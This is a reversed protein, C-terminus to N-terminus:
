EALLAVDDLRITGGEILLRLHTLRAPRPRLAPLDTHWGSWPGPSEGASVELTSVRTRGQAVAAALEQGAEAPGAGAALELVGGREPEPSVAGRGSLVWPGAAACALVRRM